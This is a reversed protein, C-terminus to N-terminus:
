PRNATPHAHKELYLILRKAIEVSEFLYGIAANCRSCLLERVKKTKHNHDM